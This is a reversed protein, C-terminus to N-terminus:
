TLLHSHLYMFSLMHSYTFIINISALQPYTRWQYLWHTVLKLPANKTLCQKLHPTKPWKIAFHGSIEVVESPILLPDDKPYNLVLLLDFLLPCDLSWSTDLIFPFHDHLIWVWPTYIWLSGTFITLTPHIFHTLILLHLSVITPWPIVSM